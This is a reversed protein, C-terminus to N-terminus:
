RLISKRYVAGAYARIVKQKEKITRYTRLPPLVFHGRRNKEFSIDKAKKFQIPVEAEDGSELPHHGFQKLSWDKFNEYMGEKWDKHANTFSNGVLPPTEMSSFVDYFLFLYLFFVFQFSLSEQGDSYAVLCMILAGSTFKWEELKKKM